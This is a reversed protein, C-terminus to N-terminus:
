HVWYAMTRMCDCYLTHELVRLKAELETCRHQMQKDTDLIKASLAAQDQRQLREQHLSAQM